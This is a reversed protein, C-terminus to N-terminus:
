NEPIKQYGYRSRTNEMLAKEAPSLKAARMEKIVRAKQAADGTQYEALWREMMDERKGSVEATDPVPTTAVPAEPVPVPPPPASEAPAEVSVKAPAAKEPAAASEPKKGCGAVLVSLMLLCACHRTM